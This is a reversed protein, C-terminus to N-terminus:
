AGRQDARDALMDSSRLSRELFEHASRSLFTGVHGGPLWRIDPEDWHRWLVDVQRAPHVLRDALGAYIFRRDYPVKPAFALPSIV